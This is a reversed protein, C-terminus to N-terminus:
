CLPSTMVGVFYFDCVGRAMVPLGRKTKNKKKRMVCLELCFIKIFILDIYEIWLATM